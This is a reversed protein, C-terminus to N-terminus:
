VFGSEQLLRLVTDDNSERPEIKLSLDYLDDISRVTKFKSVLYQEIIDVPQLCYQMSQYQQIERIVVAVKLRKDFNILQKDANLMDKNGDEIFTLDTLYTGLFPVCPPQISHLTKRYNSFNGTSDMVQKLGELLKKDKSATGNWTRQLRHVPASNFAALIAMLSNFNNLSRL